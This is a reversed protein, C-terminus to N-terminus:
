GIWKARKLDEELWKYALTTAPLGGGALVVESHYSTVLWRAARPRLSLHLQRLSTLRNRYWGVEEDQGDLRWAWVDVRSVEGPALPELHWSISAGMRGDRAPHKVLGVLRAPLLAATSLHPALASFWTTVIQEYGQLAAWYIAAVRAALREASFNDHWSSGVVVGPEPRQKQGTVPDRLWGNPSYEDPGPYPSVIETAGLSRLRVIEERLPALPLARESYRSIKEADLLYHQLEREVKDLPVPQTRGDGLQAVWLATLWVVEKWLSGGRELPLSRRRIVNALDRSIESRTAQWAWAPSHGVKDWRMSPWEFTPFARNAPSFPSAEVLQSPLEVVPVITQNGEYWSYAYISKGVTVGVPLVQREEDVPAVFPALEGLGDAWAQMTERWVAGVSPM